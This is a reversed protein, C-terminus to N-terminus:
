CPYLSQRRSECSSAPRPKGPVPAGLRLAPHARLYESVQREKAAIRLWELALAIWAKREEPDATEDAGELCRVVQQDLQM